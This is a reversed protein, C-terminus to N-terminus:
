EEEVFITITKIKETVGRILNIYYEINEKAKFAQGNRILELNNYFVCGNKIKDKHQILYEKDAKTLKRYVFLGDEIISCVDENVGIYEFNNIDEEATTKNYVKKETYIFLESKKRCYSVDEFDYNLNEMLEYEDSSLFYREFFKHANNSHFCGNFGIAERDVWVVEEGEKLGENKGYSTSCWDRYDDKFFEYKYLIKTIVGKANNLFRDTYLKILNALEETLIFAETGDYVSFEAIILFSEPSEGRCIREVLEEITIERTEENRAIIFSSSSSNSVFGNRIKM